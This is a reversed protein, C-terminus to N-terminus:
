AHVIDEDQLYKPLNKCFRYLLENDATNKMSNALMSIVKINGKIYGKTNDVRDLSPSFLYNNKTGVKIPVELIPCIDPVKIDTIDINFEFGFVRARRRARTLLATEINKTYSEKKKLLEKARHEPNTTMKIRRQSNVVDKRERHYSYRCKRCYSDKGDAMTKNDYFCDLLKSERCKYCIKSNEM